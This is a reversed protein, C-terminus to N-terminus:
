AFLRITFDSCGAVLRGDPLTCISLVPTNLQLTQTCQYEYHHGDPNSTGPTSCLNWVKVTGDYSATAFSRGDNGLACASYVLDTHEALVHCNASDAFSNRGVAVRGDSFCSVLLHNLSTPGDRVVLPCLSLVTGGCGSAVTTSMLRWEEQQPAQKPQRSGSRPPVLDWIKVTGDGSGSALRSAGVPSVAMVPGEHGELVVSKGPQALDWVRVTADDSGSALWRRGDGVACVCEVAGEHGKLTAVCSYGDEGKAGTGWVKVTKDFSASALRAESLTCVCSVTGAHGRLVQLPGEDRRGWCSGAEKARWVIVTSDACASVVMPLGKNELVCVSCVIDRHESGLLAGRGATQFGRPIYALVVPALVQLLHEAVTSEVLRRLTEPGLPSHAQTSLCSRPRKKSEKCGIM